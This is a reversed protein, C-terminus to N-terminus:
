DAYKGEALDKTIAEYKKDLDYPIMLVVVIIGIIMPFWIFIVSIMSVASAPQAGGGSVFGSVELLVGLVFTSLGSAIKMAMSVASSGIGTCNVRTKWIGFTIADHVFSGMPAFSIGMGLGKLAMCIMYITSDTTLIMPITAVIGMTTGIVIPFRKGHKVMIPMAVFIGILLGLYQALNLIAQLDIDGMVYDAFYVLCSGAINMSFNLFLGVFLTILWYKNKLLIKVTEIMSVEKASSPCQVEQQTEEAKDEDWEAMTVREKTGFFCILMMPIYILAYILITLSWGKQTYLEGNGFFRALRLYFSSFMMNTVVNMIMILAGNLGRSVQNFTMFGNLASYAVSLATGCVTCALNYTIFMYIAQATVGWTSPVCFSALVSVLMPILMRIFWPRAKGYKSKTKDIISGMIIDSVGDFIRSVGLVTAAVGASVGVVYTYYVLIVGLISTSLLNIGGGGIAYAMSERFSLKENTDIKREM